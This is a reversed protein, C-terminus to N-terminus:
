CRITNGQVSVLQWSGEARAYVRTNARLEDALHVPDQLSIRGTPGGQHAHMQVHMQM